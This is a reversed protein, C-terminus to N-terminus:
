FINVNKLIFDNFKSDFARTAEFFDHINDIMFFNRVVQSHPYKKEIYKRKSCHPKYPFIFCAYSYDSWIYNTEGLIKAHSISVSVDKDSISFTKGFPEDNLEFVSSSEFTFYFLLTINHSDFTISLDVIDQGAASGSSIKIYRKGGTILFINEFISDLHPISINLRRMKESFENYNKAFFTKKNWVSYKLKFM